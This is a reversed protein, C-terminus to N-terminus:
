NPSLVSFVEEAVDPGNQRGSKIRLITALVTESGVGMPETTDEKIRTVAQCAGQLQDIDLREVRQARAVVHIGPKPRNLPQLAMGDNLPAIQCGRWFNM